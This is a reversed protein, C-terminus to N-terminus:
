SMEIPKNANTTTSQMKYTSLILYAAVCLAISITSKTNFGTLTQYRILDQLNKLVIIVFPVTSKILPLLILTGQKGNEYFRYTLDVKNFSMISIVSLIVFAYGVELTGEATM